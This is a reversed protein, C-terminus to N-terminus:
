KSGATPSLSCGVCRGPFPIRFLQEQESSIPLQALCKMRPHNFNSEQMWIYTRMKFVSGPKSRKRKQRKHLGRIPSHKGREQLESLPEQVRQFYM